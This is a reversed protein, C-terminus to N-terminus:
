PRLKLLATESGAFAMFDTIESYAVSSFFNPGKGLVQFGAREREKRPFSSPEGAEQEPSTVPAM